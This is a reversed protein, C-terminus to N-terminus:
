WQTSPRMVGNMFLDLMAHIPLPMFNEELVNPVTFAPRGLEKGYLAWAVLGTVPALKDAFFKLVNRGPDDLKPIPEGRAVDIGSTALRALLRLYIANGGTMDFKVGHIDVKAFDTDRPDFSVQAGAVKALTLVAGTILLQGALQKIAVKRVAPDLKAYHLPNFTNITASLKRPSFFFLNLAEASKESIPGRGSFVNVM